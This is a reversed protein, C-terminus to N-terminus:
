RALEIDSFGEITYSSPNRIGIVVTNLSNWPINNYHPTDSLLNARACSLMDYRVVSDWHTDKETGLRILIISLAYIDNRSWAMGLM